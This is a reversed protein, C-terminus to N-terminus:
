NFTINTISTALTKKSTPVSNKFIVKVLKVRKNKSFSSVNSEMATIRERLSIIKKLKGTIVMAVLWSGRDIFHNIM